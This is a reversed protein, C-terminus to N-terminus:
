DDLVPQAPVSKSLLGIKTTESDRRGASPSPGPWHNKRWLTVFLRQSPQNFFFFICCNTTIIGIQLKSPSTSVSHSPPTHFSSTSLPSRPPSPPLPPPFFSPHNEQQQGKKKEKKKKKKIKGEPHSAQFRDNTSYGSLRWGTIRISNKDLPQSDIARTFSM